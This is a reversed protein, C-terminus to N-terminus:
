VVREYKQFLCTEMPNAESWWVHRHIVKNCWLKDEDRGMMIVLQFIMIIEVTLTCM